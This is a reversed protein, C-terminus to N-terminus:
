GTQTGKTKLPNVEETHILDRSHVAHLPICLKKEKALEQRYGKYNESPTLM